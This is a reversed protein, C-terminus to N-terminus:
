HINVWSLINWYPNQNHPQFGDRGPEMWLHLISIILLMPHVSHGSRDTVLTEQKKNGNKFCLSQPQSALDCQVTCEMIDPKQNSKIRCINTRNHLQESSRIHSLSFNAEKKQQVLIRLMRALISSSWKTWLLDTLTISNDFWNTLENKITSETTPKSIIFQRELLRITAEQNEPKNWEGIETRLNSSM